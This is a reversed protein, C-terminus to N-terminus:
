RSHHIRETSAELLRPPKLPSIKVRQRQLRLRLTKLLQNRRCPRTTGLSKRQPKTIGINRGQPSNSAHDSQCSAFSRVQRNWLISRGRRAQRLLPSLLRPRPSQPWPPERRANDVVILSLQSRRFGLFLLQAYFCDVAIKEHSIPSCDCSFLPAPVLLLCQPYDIASLEAALPTRQVFWWLIM